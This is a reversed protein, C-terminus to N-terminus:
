IALFKELVELLLRESRSTMIPHFDASFRGPNYSLFRMAVRIHDQRDSRVNQTGVFGNLGVVKRIWYLGGSLVRLAITM